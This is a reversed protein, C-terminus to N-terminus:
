KLLYSIADRGRQGPVGRVHDNIKCLSYVPYWSTAQFDRGSM